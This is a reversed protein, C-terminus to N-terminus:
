AAAIRDRWAEAYEEIEGHAPHWQGDIWVQFHLENLRIESSVAFWHSPNGGRRKGVKELTRRTERPTGAMACSDKWSMLRCDSAPLGFRICGFKESQQKFTLQALNGQMDVAMKTATPEWQQNASFWLMPREGDAGANSGRLAGSEVIASLHAWPAYHWVMNM